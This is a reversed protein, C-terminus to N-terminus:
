KKHLKNTLFFMALTYRQIFWTIKCWHHQKDSSTEVLMKNRSIYSLNRESLLGFLNRSVNTKSWFFEFNFLFDFSFYFFYNFISFYLISLFALICLYYTKYLINRHLQILLFKFRIKSKILNISNYFSFYIGTWEQM